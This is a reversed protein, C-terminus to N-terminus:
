LHMREISIYQKDNIKLSLITFLIEGKYNDSNQIANAVTDESIGLIETVFVEWDNKVRYKILNQLQQVDLLHFPFYFLKVLFYNYKPPKTTPIPFVIALLM